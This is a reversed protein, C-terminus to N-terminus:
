YGAVPDVIGVFDGVGLFAAVNARVREAYLPAMMAENDASHSTIVCRPEKWLPHAAPLPEPDTVDLGAGSITGSALAAALADQDILAGRAVNVLVADARMGALEPAGILHRTSPTSAAALIVVDADRLAEPLRDVTLVRSAGDFPATERRVVTLRVGFPALLAALAVAIGGAGVVLVELGFLSRGARSTDWSRRRARRPLERLLALTLMLAHEAVPQSFAGKASTWLPLRDAPQGTFLPLYADVGASPLQVWEIRPHAALLHGLQEAPRGTTWIAGRTLPGLPEVRGRGAAVAAAIFDVPEPLIAIPGPAPRRLGAPLTDPRGLVARHQDTM